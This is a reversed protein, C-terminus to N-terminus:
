DGGVFREPGFGEIPMGTSGDAVLDAVATAMSPAVLIGKHGAGTAIFVNEWGPCQGVIPLGDGTQPRLCSTHRVVRADRLAPVVRLAGEMIQERSSEWPQADFGAEENTTGAWVLGDLKRSLLGASHYIIIDAAPQATAMRLLDGKLPYLPVPHGLWGQAHASWPGMALVVMQCGLAGSSLAIGTVAGGSSELGIVTDQVYRAGMKQAARSLAVTLLYSDLSGIGEIVVGEAVRESISPELGLIEAPSVNRRSFGAVGDVVDMEDLTEAEDGFAVRLLPLVRGQVDVGTEDKLRPWWELHRRYGELALPQLPGPINEGDLPNLVGAAMGSAHAAVGDREVVTVRAGRQCLM